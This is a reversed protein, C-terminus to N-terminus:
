VRCLEEAAAPRGLTKIYALDAPTLNFWEGELRKTRFMDHLSREADSYNEFWAYHEVTIPFPLKVEFLRTRSKMNVTKGIKFGHPSRIVYVYGPTVITSLRRSIAPSRICSAFTISDLDPFREAFLDAFGYREIVTDAFGFFQKAKWHTRGSPNPKLRLDVERWDVRAGSASRELCIGLASVYGILEGENWSGLVLGQASNLRRLLDPPMSLFEHEFPSYGLPLASAALYWYNKIKMGLPSAKNHCGFNNSVVTSYQSM